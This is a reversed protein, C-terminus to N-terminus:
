KILRTNGTRRRTTPRRRRARTTTRRGGGQVKEKAGMHPGLRRLTNRAVKRAQMRLTPLAYRALYRMYQPTIREIPAALFMEIRERDGATLEVHDDLWRLYTKMSQAMRAITAADWGHSRESSVSELLSILEEYMADEMGNLNANAVVVANSYNSGLRNRGDAMEIQMQAFYDRNSTYSHGLKLYSNTGLCLHEVAGGLVSGTTQDLGVQHLVLVTTDHAALLHGGALLGQLVQGALAVLRLLTGELQELLVPGGLLV